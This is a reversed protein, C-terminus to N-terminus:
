AWGYNRRLIDAVRTFRPRDLIAGERRIGDRDVELVRDLRLWSPRNDRDWEGPGLALWNRQGNRESQSSLMLGLVTRENRGVVLVPRDKGQQPDDEYPVWTWVIEGPDADGDLNPSYELHRGKRHARTKVQTLGPALNRRGLGLIRSLLKAV